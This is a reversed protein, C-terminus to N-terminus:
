SSFENSFTIIRKSEKEVKAIYKFKQSKNSNEIPIEAPIAFNM